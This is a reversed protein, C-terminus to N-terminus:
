WAKKAAARGVAMPENPPYAIADEAYFSAVLEVDRKAAAASWEDDLKILAKAKAEQTDEAGALAPYSVWTATFVSLVAFLVYCYMRMSARNMNALELHHCM